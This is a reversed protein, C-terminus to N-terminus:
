HAPAESRFTTLDILIAIDKLPGLTLALPESVPDETLFRWENQYRYKDFKKFPNMNGCYNDPIYEVFRGQVPNGVKDAALAFREIFEVTNKFVVATDGFEHFRTDMGIRTDNGPKMQFFPGPVTIDPEDGEGFPRFGCMCYVGLDAEPSKGKLELFPLEISTNELMAKLKVTPNKGSYFMRLAENPDGVASNDVDRYYGLRRMHLTGHDLLEQLHKRKGFKALICRVEPKGGQSM